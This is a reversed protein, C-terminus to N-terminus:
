QRSVTRTVGTVVTTALIWGTIVLVYSLWQAWGEPAYAREQGFDIIPLLLDLTYFVPNFHPAEDAKLPSPRHLAYAISGLAMLSLLWVAARLPRFGYGVTADQAYGWLRGYWALTARHRRQKALQVRRAAADDGMRRYAETLQEYAYPVYGDGDRQVMPLRAHAPEHPMLTTYTLNNLLVKDPLVDTELFLVEIQSRRLNLAGEIRPGERLWLEGITGSSMRLATGGPNSLQAYSLDMRGEVRAGRLDMRGHTKAYRMLVDSGASLREARLVTGGPHSLEAHTLDIMGNVTADDLRIEGQARLGQARLDDGIEAQNLQLVPEGEASEGFESRQLYLAGAIQAGSLRLRGRFRCDALRLSGDVRIRSLRLGPFVSKDLRVYHLQAGSWDPVADFHCGSLRIVRDVTAYRLDLTGTIRAGSVKLAAIEGEERPGTLLLTRLVSARLTREPGWTRGDATEEDEPARFDVDLGKPFADWVRREAETLEDIIM